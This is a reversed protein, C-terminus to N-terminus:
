TGCAGYNVEDETNTNTVAEDTVVEDDVCLALLTTVVGIDRTSRTHRTRCTPSRALVTSSHSPARSSTALSCNRASVVTTTTECSKTRHRVRCADDARTARITGVAPRLDRRPRRASSLQACFRVQHPSHSAILTLKISDGNKVRSM